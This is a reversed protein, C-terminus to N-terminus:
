GAATSRMSSPPQSAREADPFRCASPSSLEDLTAAQTPHLTLISSRIFYYPRGVAAIRIAAGSPRALCLSACATTICPGASM